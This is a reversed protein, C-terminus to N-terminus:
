CFFNIFVFSINEVYVYCGGTKLRFFFHSDRQTLITLPPSLPCSSQKKKREVSNGNLRFLDGGGIANVLLWQLSPRKVQSSKRYKERLHVGNPTSTVKFGNPGDDGGTKKAVYRIYMGLLLPIFPQSTFLSRKVHRLDSRFGSGNTNLCTRTCLFM